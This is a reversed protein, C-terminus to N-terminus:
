KIIKAINITAKEFFTNIRGESKKLAREMYPNPQTGPHRVVKGFIQGTRRNALVKKRKARIIHPRTGEHVYGSYKAKSDIEGRLKNIRNQKINQRLNGGGGQKNVPAEKLAQNHTVVMSKGLAIGLEKVAVEPSKKLGKIITDFGKLEIKLM